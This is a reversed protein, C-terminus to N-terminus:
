ANSAAKATTAKKKKSTNKASNAVRKARIRALLESAPEDRPDQPVLEGRFAKSLISQDLQTLSSEMSALGSAVSTCAEDNTVLLDAVAQQEALPALAIPADLIKGQSLNRMSNSTGTANDEFFKRVSESRLGYLLYEPVLEKSAPNMRLTKDSLMLNPYDAKVLVVAGILEVTNARSILLDGKRPTPTDGIEDGDKLAKNANPDFERWTVASVKLVGYEGDRAPHSLATPSRGADFSEILDGVQCWCWGDPLEPLESEDVPEPEKYKDQWNKPPQKGKAEYKALQEAEWRERRETRIRSLLKFAPEVNPNAERWDATLKGSFADRLVSQRLQGILPGVESLLFRARSSREQLSEIASVIRSQEALPPLPVQTAEFKGKTVHRLGVGGHAKGILEELKHNIAFRFFTMNLDDEDILVRFIHQNLLAKPGNWIHAGFSTGPTGSWAFLLEGPRVLHKDAYEGDFHNYKAEAKNLNQIRIIPLGTESWEKPKFARGNVLDCLDGIPVDAWGEPLAEGSASEGGSRAVEVSEGRSLKDQTPTQKQKAPSQKKAIM